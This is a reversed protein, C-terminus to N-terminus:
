LYKHNVFFFTLFYDQFKALFLQKSLSDLMELYEQLGFSLVIDSEGKSIRLYKACKFCANQYMCNDGAMYVLPDSAFFFIINKCLM